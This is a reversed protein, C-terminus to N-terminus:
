IERTKGSKHEARAESVLRDLKGKRSDGEIEDDWARADFEVFWARFKRLDEPSLARVHKELQELITM